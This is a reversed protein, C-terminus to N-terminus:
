TVDEDEDSPLISIVYNVSVIRTRIPRIHKKKKSDFKLKLGATRQSM